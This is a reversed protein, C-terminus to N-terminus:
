TADGKPRVLTQGTPNREAEIAKDVARIEDVDDTQRLKEARSAQCRDRKWNGQKTVKM